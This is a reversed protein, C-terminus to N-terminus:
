RLIKVAGKDADVEVMDGDHLVKTAIKTGIICPKNMERAVISAHSTIGGENTIFAAAKKMIPVFDVSTMAAVLIDGPKLKSFDNAGLIVKVIGRVKGRSAGVGKINELAKAAKEKNSHISKINKLLKMTASKSLFKVAGNDGVLFAVVKRARIIKKADVKKGSLIDKIEFATLYFCDQWSKLGAMVKIKKFIERVMVSAKSIKNKRYENLFTGEQLARALMTVESNNIKKLLAKAAKVKELHEKKFNLLEQRCDKRLMERLQNKADVLSWPEDCFNAPIHGYQSLWKKLEKEIVDKKIKKVQIEEGIRLLDLQSDFLPTHEAPYTVISIIRFIQEEGYGLGKLKETLKESGLRGISTTLHLGACFRTYNDTFVKWNGVTTEKICKKVAALLEAAFQYYRERLAALKNESDAAKLVAMEYERKNELDLFVHTRTGNLTLPLQKLGVRVGFDRSNYYHGIASMHQHWFSMNRTVSVDWKVGDIIVSNDASKIKEKKM